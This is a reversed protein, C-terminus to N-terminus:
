YVALRDSMPHMVIRANYKIFLTKRKTTPYSDKQGRIVRNLKNLSFFAPRVDFNRVTKLLKESINPVHYRTGPQNKTRLKRQLIIM